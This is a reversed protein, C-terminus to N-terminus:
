SNTKNQEQEKYIKTLENKTKKHNKQCKSIAM